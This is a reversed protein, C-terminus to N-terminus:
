PSCISYEFCWSVTTFPHVNVLVGVHVLPPLETVSSGDMAWHNRNCYEQKLPTPVSAGAGLWFTAQNM